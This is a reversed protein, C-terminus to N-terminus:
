TGEMENSLWAESVMLKLFFTVHRKRNLILQFVLCFENRIFFFPDEYEKTSKKLM